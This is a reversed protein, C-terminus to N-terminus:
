LLSIQFLLDGIREIFIDLATSPNDKSNIINDVKSLKIYKDPADIFISLLQKENTILLLVQMLLHIQLLQFVKNSKYITQLM